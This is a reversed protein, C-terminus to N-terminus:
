QICIVPMKLQIKKGEGGSPRTWSFPVGFTKNVSSKNLLTYYESFAYFATCFGNTKKENKNILVFNSIQSKKIQPDPNLKEDDHKGQLVWEFFLLTKNALMTSFEEISYGKMKSLAEAFNTLNYNLQFLNLYEELRTNKCNLVRTFDLAAYEHCSVQNQTTKKVSITEIYDEKRKTTSIYIIIDTKARGGSMLNPVTDTARVDLLDTLSVEDNKLDEGEKLIKNMIRFYLSQHDLIGSKFKQFNVADSLIAAVEKEYKLGRLAVNSGEESTMYLARPEEVGIVSEKNEDNRLLISDSYEQLYNKFEKLNLLHGPAYYKNQRYLAQKNKFELKDKTGGENLVLYICAIIKDSYISHRKIGELDFYGTKVRDSRFSTTSRVIIFKDDNTNIVFNALYQSTYEYDSHKFNVNHAYDTITGSEKYRKLIDLIQKQQIKGAKQKEKNSLSLASKVAKSKTPKKKM